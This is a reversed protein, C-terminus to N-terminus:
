SCKVQGSRGFYGRWALAIEFQGGVLRDFGAAAVCPLHHFASRTAFSKRFCCSSASRVFTDM